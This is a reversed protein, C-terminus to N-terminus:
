PFFIFSLFPIIGLPAFVFSVLPGMCPAAWTSILDICGILSYSITNEVPNCGAKGDRMANLSNAM